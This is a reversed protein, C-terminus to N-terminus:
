IASSAPEPDIRLYEAPKQRGVTLRLRYLDRLQVLYGAAERLSMKSAGLERDDFRYPLEVLRSAGSRVILELCIKFGGARIITARAIERRILFFGSAADRIPSLPRALLCAARSLVRRKLPWDPTSGGRVYRSAVVVDARTKRFIALMRPVLAPPHSFDADMVGVVGAAAVGFGEVVATGLGLKGSRHIVRVPYERALGDAVEGTGDPSNDDVIVLELRVGASTCVRFLAATLEAIRERENYTPVVMTLDPRLADAPASHM